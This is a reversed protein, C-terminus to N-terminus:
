ICILIIPMFYVFGNIFDIIYDNKNHTELFIPINIKQKNANVWM